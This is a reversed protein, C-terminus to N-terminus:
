FKSLVYLHESARSGGVCLLQNRLKPERCGFVSALDLFVQKFTGGQSQHITQCYAYQLRNMLSRGAVLNLKELFAYFEIWQHKRVESPLELIEKKWNSVFNKAREWSDPHVMPLTTEMGLDTEVDLYYCDIKEQGMRATGSRVEKVTCEACSQMFIFKRRPDDLRVCIGDSNFYTDGQGLFIPEKAVLQEGKVFPEDEGVGMINERVMSNIASARQNTWTLSRVAFSDDEEACQFALILRSEWEEKQCKTINGETKPRPPFQAQLDQRIATVWNAIAGEYRMVQTLEYGAAIQFVPSEPENIPPLQAPDGMFLTPTEKEEILAMLESDVMSAEDVVVLGFDSFFPERSWENAKLKQRGLADYEGPMVHLLSHLTTIYVNQLNYEQAMRRLVHVAKHTPACIAIKGIPQLAKIIRQACFTKGTGAYGRLVFPSSPDKFWAICADFAEKQQASLEAFLESKLNTLLM